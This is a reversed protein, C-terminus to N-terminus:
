GQRSESKDEDSLAQNLASNSDSYRKAELFSELIVMAAVRDINAKTKKKTLEAPRLLRTAMATSFREDVFRYPLGSLGQLWEAFARVETSKQSEKGDCHIPLGIVWGVIGERSVVQKFYKADLRENRRNYTTLPNVWHRTPDCIALGIRVTGYDIGVLRGEDPWPESSPSGDLNEDNSTNTIDWSRLSNFSKAFV